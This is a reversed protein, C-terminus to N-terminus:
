KTSEKILEDLQKEFKDSMAAFSRQGIKGGAQMAESSIAPLEKLIRQGAPSSYFATAANLDSRSLHKQYIPVIAEVMEDIPLSKFIDGFLADVKALQEPAANPVKKKFGEEAGQKFQAAMGDMILAMQQRSHMLDLFKLVEERTPAEQASPTAEAANQATSFSLLSLLMVGVAAVRQRSTM